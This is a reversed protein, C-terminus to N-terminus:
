NCWGRVAGKVLWPRQVHQRKDGGVGSLCMAENVGESWEHKQEFTGEEFLDDRLVQDFFCGCGSLINVKNQKELSEGRGSILSYVWTSM